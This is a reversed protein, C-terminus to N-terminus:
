KVVALTNTGKNEEFSARVAARPAGIGLRHRWAYVDDFPLRFAEVAPCAQLIRIFAGATRHFIDAFVNRQWFEHFTQQLVLHKEARGAAADRKRTTFHQHLM